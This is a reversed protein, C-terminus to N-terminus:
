LVSSDLAGWTQSGQVAGALRGASSAVMILRPCPRSPEVRLLTWEQSRDHFSVVRVNRQRDCSPRPSSKRFRQNLRRKGLRNRIADFVCSRNLVDM